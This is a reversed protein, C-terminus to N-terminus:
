PQTLDEHDIGYTPIVSITDCTLRQAFNMKRTKGSVKPLHGLKKHFMNPLHNSCIDENKRYFLLVTKAEIAQYQHEM